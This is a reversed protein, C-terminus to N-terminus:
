KLSALVASIKTNMAQRETSSLRADVPIVEDRTYALIKKAEDSKGIMVNVLGGLYYASANSADNDLVKKVHAFIDKVMTVAHASDTETRLQYYEAWAVGLLAQDATPTLVLASRYHAEAGALDGQKLLAAGLIIEAEARVQQAPANQAVETVLAVAKSLASDSGVSVYLRALNIKAHTLTPDLALAREYSYQADSTRGLQDFAHGLYSILPANTPAITLGTNYITVAADLKGGAEYAYGLARYGDALTADADIAAQAATEAKAAFSQDGTIFAKQAYLLSLQTQATPSSPNAAAAQEAQTVAADINGTNYLSQVDTGGTQSKPFQALPSLVIAVGLALIIFLFAGWWSTSSKKPPMPATNMPRAPMPTIPTTPGTPQMPQMPAPPTPTDM